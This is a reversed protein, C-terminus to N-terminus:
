QGMGAVEFIPLGQAGAASGMGASDEIEVGEPEDEVEVEGFGGCLECDPDPDGGHELPGFCSCLVLTRM